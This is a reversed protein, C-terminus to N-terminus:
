KGYKQLKNSKKYIWPSPDSNSELASYIFFDTHSQKQAVFGAKLLM